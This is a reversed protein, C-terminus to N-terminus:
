RTGRQMGEPLPARCVDLRGAGHLRIAPQDSTLTNAGSVRWDPGEHGSVRVWPLRRRERHFGDLLPLAREGKHLGMPWLPM